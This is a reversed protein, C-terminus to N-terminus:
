LGNGKTSMVCIYIDTFSSESAMGAACSFEAKKVEKMEINWDVFRLLSEMKQLLSVRLLMSDFFAFPAFDFRSMPLPFMSPFEKV